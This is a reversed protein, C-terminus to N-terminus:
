FISPFGGSIAGINPTITPAQVLNQYGASGAGYGAYLNGPSTAGGAYGGGGGPQSFWNNLGQNLSSAAGNYGSARADGAAMMANGQNNAANAGASATGNTATQGTGAIGALRNFWNGYQQDALNAARDQIAKITAGSTLLGRAAASRDVGQVAQDVTYKYGPDERFQSFANNQPDVGNLGMLDAQRTVAAGGAVRWPAYDERTQLYQEHQLNAADKAAGAQESAGFMSAGAGILASGGIAVAVWAM